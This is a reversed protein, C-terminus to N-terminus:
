YQSRAMEKLYSAMQIDPKDFVPVGHKLALDRLKSRMLNLEQSENLTEKTEPYPEISLVIKPQFINYSTNLQKGIHFAAECCTSTARKNREIVFLIIKSSDRQNSENYFSMNQDEILKITETNTENALYIDVRKPAIKYHTNGMSLTQSPNKKFAPVSSFLAM